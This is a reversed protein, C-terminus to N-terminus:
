QIIDTKNIKLQNNYFLVSFQFNYSNRAIKLQERVFNSAVIKFTNTKKICFKQQFKKRRHELVIKSKKLSKQKSCYKM